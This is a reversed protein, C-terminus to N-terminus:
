LDKHCVKARFNVDANRQILLNAVNTNGYHSAIHLPTFGSQQHVSIIFSLTKFKSILLFNQEKKSKVCFAQPSGGNKLKDLTFSGVKIVKWMLYFCISLFLFFNSKLIKAMFFKPFRESAFFFFFPLLKHKVHHSNADLHRLICAYLYKGLTLKIMVYVHIEKGNVESFFSFILICILSVM